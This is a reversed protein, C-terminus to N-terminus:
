QQWVSMGSLRNRQKKNQLDRKLARERKHLKKLETAIGTRSSELAMIRSGVHALEAQRVATKLLTQSVQDHFFQVIKELEPEFLFARKEVPKELDRQESLAAFGTINQEAAEQRALSLFTGGFVTVNEYEALLKRLTQEEEATLTTDVSIPLYQVSITRTSHSEILAHGTNGLVVVDSNDTRVAALCAEVVDTTISGAFRGSPTILLALKKKPATTPRKGEELMRAVEQQHSARVDRFIDQLHTAFAQAKQVSSRIRQMRAVAVEQSAEVLEGLQHTLIRQDTVNKLVAM